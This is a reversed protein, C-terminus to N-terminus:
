RSVVTFWSIRWKNNLEQEGKRLYTRNPIMIDVLGSAAQIEPTQQCNEFSSIKNGLNSM